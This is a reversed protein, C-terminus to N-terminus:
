KSNNCSTCFFDILGTAGFERVGYMKLKGCVSCVEKDDDQKENNIIKNCYQKISIVEELSLGNIQKKLLNVIETM